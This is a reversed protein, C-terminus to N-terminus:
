EKPWQDQKDEVFFFLRDKVLEKRSVPCKLTVKHPTLGIVEWDGEIPSDEIRIKQGEILPCAKFLTVTQTM